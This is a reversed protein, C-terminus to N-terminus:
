LNIWEEKPTICHKILCTGGDVNLFDKNHWQHCLIQYLGWEAGLLNKEKYLKEVNKFKDRPHFYMHDWIYWNSCKNCNCNIHPTLKTDPGYINPRSGAFGVSVGKQVMNLYPKFDVKSSVILDYRVRIIINYNEPLTNLLYYHALLQKSAGKTRNYYDPKWWMKGGPDNPPNPLRNVKDWIKCNPKTITDLTSHYDYEPESVYVCNPVNIKGYGDWHLYFTDYPFVKRINKLAVEYGDRALGSICIAINNENLM